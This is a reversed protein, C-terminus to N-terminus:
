RVAPILAPLVDPKWTQRASDFAAFDHDFQWYAWAWGLRDASRAVFSLYRTRADTPAREYVGFEGLYIPRKEKESWSRIKEFDALAKREDEPTGWDLPGLRSFTPSWPAGQHTFRIPAYYHFTVILNRDGSPLALEEVPMDDVNLVAAIVTRGPNSTRIIGLCENLLANWSPSTMQGGPENLVEFVLKPYKGAYREAIQTWFAKLKEACASVDRQCTDTDHEDLIPILKRALVEEIVADLRRLVIEDLLNGEGMFKFGFFNIRVHSFGAKRIATLNDLRFPANRGGEWIGDYGLINIGRGLEGPARAIGQKAADARSCIALMAIALTLGFTVSWRACIANM